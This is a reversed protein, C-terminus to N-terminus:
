IILHLMTCTTQSCLIWMLKTKSAHCHSEQWDVDVFHTRWVTCLVMGSCSSQVASKRWNFDVASDTSSKKSHWTSTLSWAGFWYYLFWFNSSITCVMLGIWALFVFTCLRMTTEPIPWATSYFGDLFASLSESIFVPKYEVMFASILFCRFVEIWTWKDM